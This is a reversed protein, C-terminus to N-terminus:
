MDWYSDSNPSSKVKKEKSSLQELSNVNNSHKPLLVKLDEKKFDDSDQQRAKQCSGADLDVSHQRERAKALEDDCCESGSSSESDEDGSEM